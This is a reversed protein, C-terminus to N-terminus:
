DKKYYSIVRKVIKTVKGNDDYTTRQTWNGQDDYSEYSYTEKKHIASDKSVSINNMEVVDGKDNVKMKSKYIMKGASDTHGGRNIAKDYDNTFSYKLTSDAKYAKGATVAGYENEKLDSFYTDMKGTSDYSQGGSYKGDKDIRVTFSSKKKGDAMTIAEKFQGGEYPTMTGEEKSNGKSDKSYFKLNYRKKDFENISACCSDMEGIKGTSDVKFSSEETLQVKGKLNQAILDTNKPGETEQKNNNCSILFLGTGPIWAIKKM